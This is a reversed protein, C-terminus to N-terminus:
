EALPDGLELVEEIQRELEDERCGDLTNKMEQLVAKMLENDEVDIRTQIIEKLKEGKKEDEKAINNCIINQEMENFVM